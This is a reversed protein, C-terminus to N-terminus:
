LGAALMEAWREPHGLYTASNLVRWGRATELAFTPFGSGGLQQLLARSEQIHERTPEGEMQRYALGFNEIGFERGFQLLVDRDGINAGEVFHAHQLHDLFEPGRGLSEAALVATIPPQSDFIAWPSAALEDLYAAGFQQGTMRTIREAHPLIFARMEPGGRQGSMMNGAHMCLQLGPVTSAAKLLPAAGFCWGCFPDYICHLTAPM